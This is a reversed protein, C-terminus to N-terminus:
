VQEIKLSYIAEVLKKKLAFVDSKIWKGSVKDKGKVDYYHITGDLNIVKFDLFYKAIQINNVIIDFCVQREFDAILGANKKIVLDSYYNAEKKSDFKIGDIEVKQNRYKNKKKFVIKGDDVFYKKRFEIIDM